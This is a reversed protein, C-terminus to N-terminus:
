STAPPTGDRDFVIKPGRPRAITFNDFAAVTLGANFPMEYVVRTEVVIVVEGLGMVPLQDEIDDLGADFLQAAGNVGHSWNVAYNGAVNQIQSVRMQMQQSGRVISHAVNAMGQIDHGYVTTDQRSLMDAVMYNTKVSTNYVRYADFFVFTAVYAWILIPTMIVTELAVAANEDRAFKRFRDIM